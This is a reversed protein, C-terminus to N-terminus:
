DAKSNQTVQSCDGEHDEPNQTKEGQLLLDPLQHLACQVYIAPIIFVPECAPAASKRKASFYFSM